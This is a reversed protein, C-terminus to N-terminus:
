HIKHKKDWIFSHGNSCKCQYEYLPRREYESGQGFYEVLDGHSEVAYEIGRINCDQCRPKNINKDHYGGLWPDFLFRESFSDWLFVVYAICCVSLPFILVMALEHLQGTGFWRNIEDEVAFVFFTFIVLRTVIKMFLKFKM